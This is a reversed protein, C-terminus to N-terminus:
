VCEIRHDGNGPNQQVFAKLGDLVLEVEGLVFETVFVVHSRTEMKCTGHLREEETEDPLPIGAATNADEFSHLGELVLQM